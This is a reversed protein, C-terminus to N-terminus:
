HFYDSILVDDPMDYVDIAALASTARAAPDAKLQRCHRCGCPYDLLRQYATTNIIPEKEFRIKFVYAAQPGSIVNSGVQEQRM